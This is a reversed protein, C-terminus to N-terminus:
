GKQDEVAKVRELSEILNDFAKAKVTLVRLNAEDIENRMSSVVPVLTQLDQRLIDLLDIKVTSYVKALATAVAAFPAGADVRKGDPGLFDARWTMYWKTAEDWADKYTQFSMASIQDLAQTINGPAVVRDRGRPNGKGELKKRVVKASPEPTWHASGEHTRRGAYSKFMKLCTPCTKGDLKYYEDIAEQSMDRVQEDTLSPRQAAIEDPTPDSKPRTKPMRQGKM